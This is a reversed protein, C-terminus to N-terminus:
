LQRAEGTEYAIPKGLSKAHLIEMQCGESTKYDGFVWLEDALELLRRCHALVLDAREDECLPDIFSFAHIPSLILWDPHGVLLRNCIITIERINRECIERPSQESCVFGPRLPHAVYIIKKVM